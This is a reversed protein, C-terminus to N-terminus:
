GLIHRVIVGICLGVRFLRSSLLCPIVESSCLEPQVICWYVAQLLVHELGESVHDREMHPHGSSGHDINRTNGNLIGITIGGFLGRCLRKFSNLSYSM